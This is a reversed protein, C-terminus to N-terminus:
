SSKSTRSMVFLRARSLYGPRDSFVYGGSVDLFYTGICSNYPTSVLGHFGARRRGQSRDPQEVLHPLSDTIAVVAETGLLGVQEPYSSEDPEM